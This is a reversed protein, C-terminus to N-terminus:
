NYQKKTKAYNDNLTNSHLKIKSGADFVLDWFDGEGNTCNITHARAKVVISIRRPNESSAYGNEIIDGFKLTRKFNEYGEIGLEPIDELRM